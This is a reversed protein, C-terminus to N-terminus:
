THKQSFVLVRHSQLNVAGYIFIMGLMWTCYSCKFIGGVCMCVNGCMVCVCVCVNMCCEALCYVCYIERYRLESRIMIELAEAGSRTNISKRSTM